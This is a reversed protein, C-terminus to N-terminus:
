QANQTTYADRQDSRRRIVEGVGDRVERPGSITRRLEQSRKERRRESLRRPLDQLLGLGGSPDLAKGRLSLRRRPLSGRGGGGGVVPTESRRQSLSRWIGGRGKNGGRDEGPATFPRGMYSVPPRSISELSARNKVVRLNGSNSRHVTRRIPSRPQVYSDKSGYYDERSPLIAFTRKMRESLTRPRTAGRYYHHDGDEDDYEGDSSHDSEDDAYAPRWLPHLRNPDALEDDPDGYASVTHRRDRGVAERDADDPRDGRLSSRRTLSLTRSLLGGSNKPAASASPEQYSERRGLARRVVTSMRRPMPPRQAVEEYFNGLQMEKEQAPTLGSPTAPIFAISPPVVRTNPPKPPDRPNQLPSDVDDLSFTPQPPTVPGTRADTDIMKIIPRELRPALSSNSSESPRTSHDVMLVSTNQHAYLSVAQAESVEAHSTASTEVSYQSFPTRQAALRRGFLPDGHHDVSLKHVSHQRPSKISDASSLRESREEALREKRRSPLDQRSDYSKQSRPESPGQARSRADPQQSTAKELQRLSDSTLSGARSTNRSTPASLSSTRRPVIPPFDMTRQDGPESGDAQSRNRGRRPIPEFYSTLDKGNSLQTLPPYRSSSGVSHSRKSRTSSRASRLSPSESASKISSRRQPIVVVPIGGNRIVERRAKRSSISNTTSVSAYSQHRSESLRGSLPPRKAVDYELQASKYEPKPSSLDQRSHRLGDLKRVHRLTRQSRSSTDPLSAETTVNSTTSKSSATSIRRQKIEPRTMTIKSAILEPSPELDPPSPCSQHRFDPEVQFTRRRERERPIEHPSHLAVASQPFQMTRLAETAATAVVTNDEVVEQGSTGRPSKHKRGTATRDVDADWRQDTGWEGDFNVFKDSTRSGPTLPSPEPSTAPSSKSELGLGLGITRAKKNDKSNDDNTQRVTSQSSTRVSSVVPRLKPISDEEESSYPVEPATRFSEPQSAVTTAKSPLRDCAPPRALRPRKEVCLQPPTVEPTPPSRQNTPTRPTRPPSASSSISKRVDEASTDPTDVFPPSPPMVSHSSSSNRSHAPPTPPLDPGSGKRAPQRHRPAHNSLHNLAPSQTGFTRGFPGAESAMKTHKPAAGVSASRWTTYDNPKPHPLIKRKKFLLPQGTSTSRLKGPVDQAASLSTPPPDSDTRRQM